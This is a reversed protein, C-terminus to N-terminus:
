ALCTLHCISEVQYAFNGSDILPANSYWSSPVSSNAYGHRLVFSTHAVSQWQSDAEHSAHYLAPLPFVHKSQSYSISFPRLDSVFHCVQSAQCHLGPYVHAWYLHCVDSRSCTASRRLGTFSGMSKSCTDTLM